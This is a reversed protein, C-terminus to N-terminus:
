KNSDALTKVLKRVDARLKELDVPDAYRYDYLTESQQKANQQQGDVKWRKSIAFVTKDDVNVKPIEVLVLLYLPKNDTGDNNTSYIHYVYQPAEDQEQKSAAQFYEYGWVNLNEIRLFEFNFYQDVGKPLKKQQYAQYLNEKYRQAEELENLGYCTVVMNKWAFCKRDNLQQLFPGDFDQDSKDLIEISQKTYEHAAAWQVKNRAQKALASLAGLRAWRVDKKLEGDLEGSEDLQKVIALAEKLEGRTFHKGAQAFRVAHDQAYAANTLFTIAIICFPLPSSAVLRNM